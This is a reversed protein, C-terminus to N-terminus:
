TLRLAGSTGILGIDEVPFLSCAPPSAARECREEYCGQRCADVHGRCVYAAEVERTLTEREDDDRWPDCSYPGAIQSRIEAYTARQGATRSSRQVVTALNGRHRPRPVFFRPSDGAVATRCISGGHGNSM